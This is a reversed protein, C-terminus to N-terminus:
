LRRSTGAGADGAGKRGSKGKRVDKKRREEEERKKREEEEEAITPNIEKLYRATGWDAQLLKAGEVDRVIMTEDFLAFAEPEEEDRYGLRTWNEDAAANLFNDTAEYSTPVQTETDKGRQTALAATQPQQDRLTKPKAGSASTSTTARSLTTKTIQAQADIHHFQPRMQAIGTIETFHLEDVM